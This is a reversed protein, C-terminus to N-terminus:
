FVPCFRSSKVIQVNAHGPGCTWDGDRGGDELQGLDGPRHKAL